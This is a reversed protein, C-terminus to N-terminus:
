AGGPRVVVVCADDRKRTAERYLVGAIISPDRRRLGPYDELNWNTHLGDSHMIILGNQPLTYSFEQLRPSHYGATGNHSIMMVPKGAGILAGAINGIGAYRVTGSGCNLHAVAVAAGRTSRLAGHVRQLIAIPSWDVSREFVSIAEASARAAMVGHGLGDAAIVAMEGERERCSWADGSVEEGAVPKSVAGVKAAPAPTEQVRAVLVTGRGPESYIDFQQSQRVVAGLGTGPTARSSYGDELCRAIDRMGPGRDIALIEIGPGSRDSLTSLFVEGNQAHKLLNTCIESVVIAARGAVAEELGEEHSMAAAARRVEAVRSPDDIPFIRTM